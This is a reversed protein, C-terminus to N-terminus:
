HGVMTDFNRAGAQSLEDIAEDIRNTRVAVLFAGKNLDGTFYSLDEEPSPMGVLTGGWAGVVALLVGCVAMAVAPSIGELGPFNIVALGAAVGAGAGAILGILTGVNIRTGEPETDVNPLASEVMQRAVNDGQSLLSTQQPDFSADQLAQLAREASQRENFVGVLVQAGDVQTELYERQGYGAMAASGSVVRTGGGVMAGGGSPKQHRPM